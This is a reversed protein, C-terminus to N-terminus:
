SNLENEGGVMRGAKIKVLRHALNIESEDHTIALVTVKKEQNLKEILTHVIAKTESDLGTTVVDLLLVEPTFLLNRILAIRQKEGGSLETIKKDLMEPALQVQHLATIVREEDFIEDRIEFPFQLNDKVTTGFLSPQQFCYSVKRRYEEKAFSEQTRGQFIVKGETPTLLTALIRLFTSKGSGSPGIITIYEGTKASFNIGDLIQTDDVSFGLNTVKFIDDM